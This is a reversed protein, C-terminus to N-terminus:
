WPVRVGTPLAALFERGYRKTRVRPDLVVVKGRDRRSRVLRGFGQRFKLIAEPLSHDRFGNGGKAELARIRAETLPHGPQAFPFRTILVLTLADGPVDIGEWLSETGILVSRPDDRKARLLEQQPREGQVLLEIGAHQLRDRVTEALRHVFAWSTCLVLARGDNDLLHHLVREASERAFGEPDTGPDPLAEDLVLDVQAGYDFPSGLRLTTADDIGLKSRLRAFGASDTDLTASVLVACRPAAFVQERLAAGLELPASRLEAGTGPRDARRRGSRELWRVHNPTSARGLARLTHALTALGRARALMETRPSLDEIRGADDEVTAALEDLLEALSGDLEADGLPLTDARRQALRAALTDFFEEACLRAQGLLVKSRAGGFRALLGRPANRPQLRRLHWAVTGYGVRLGLSETAVRELHHAEDFVVVEHAPLYSAGALRLAVDSMYLAHNVILLDASGLRRRAAQYHCPEYHPCARHLCNGHEACVEDWVERETPFPLTMRTGESTSLSWDVIGRLQEQQVPDDFLLGRERTALHMRRLCLYNNRGVATVASFELGLVAQLFPIDKHELQQQLAITRTSVVVPGRGRNATAHLVAPLLYAFSKGVGTGAEALVHRRERLGREIAVALELQEDRTEYGDLRRAVAGDPGLLAAVDSM